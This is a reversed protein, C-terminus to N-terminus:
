RSGVPVKKQCVLILHSETCYKSDLLLEIPSTSHQLKGPTKSRFKEEFTSGWDNSVVKCWEIGIYAGLQREATKEASKVLRWTAWWLGMTAAFLLWEGYKVGLIEGHVHKESPLYLFPLGILLWGALAILAVLAIKGDSTKPM